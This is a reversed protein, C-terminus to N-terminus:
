LGPAPLEYDIVEGNEALIAKKFSFAALVQEGDKDIGDAIYLAPNNGNAKLFYIRDFSYGADEVIKRGIETAQKITIM